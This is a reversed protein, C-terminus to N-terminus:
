DRNQCSKLIDNLKNLYEERLNLEDKLSLIDDDNNSSAIFEKDIYPLDWCLHILHGVQKYWPECTCVHDKGHKEKYAEKSVLENVVCDLLDSTYWPLLMKEVNKIKTNVQSIASRLTDM